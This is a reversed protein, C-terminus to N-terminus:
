FLTKNNAIIRGTTSLKVTQPLCNLILTSNELIDFYYDLLIDLFQSSRKVANQTNLGFSFTGSAGSSLLISQASQDAKYSFIKNINQTSYVSQKDVIPVLRRFSEIYKININDKSITNLYHKYFPVKTSARNFAAIAKKESGQIIMEPSAKKLSNIIYNYKLKKLKKRLLVM